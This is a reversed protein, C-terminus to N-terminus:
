GNDRTMLRGYVWAVASWSVVLIVTSAAATTLGRKGSLVFDLNVLIWQSLVIAAAAKVPSRLARELWVFLVVHAATSVAFGVPMPVLPGTLVEGAAAPDLLFVVGLFYGVALTVFAALLPLLTDRMRGDYRPM